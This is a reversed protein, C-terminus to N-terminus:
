GLAAAFEPGHEAWWRRRRDFREMGGLENWMRIFNQDGAQVRRLVFQGGRDITSSLVSHLEGRQGADLGYADAVLRLRAPRDAEHWGLQAASAPDDVPVCMRAFQALDYIPRGPAAFDFDLLAVAAGDRFVVNEMCVDNHCVIVADARLRGPDAMEDSWEGRYSVQVSADHFRRILSSVSALASGTQAWEPYPPIPVDGPIFELRERGDAAIGVPLSAGDFGTARLDTLFRHVTETFPNAPRLVHNGARTVAGANAVGGQLSEESLTM